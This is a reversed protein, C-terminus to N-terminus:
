AVPGAKVRAQPALRMWTEELAALFRAYSWQAATERGADLMAALRRGGARALDAAEALADAAATFDDDPAWFGNEPTAYQLGGVGTYGACLAGCAMAELATIGVSEARPLSLFLRSAAFTAAVEAEPRDTLERWHLDAHRPHFRGFFGRIVPAEAARKMPTYAVAWDPPEARPTFLREDAFCPVLEVRAQPFARRVTEALRPGVSIFTLPGEIPLADILELSLGVTYAQNFVITRGPPQGALHRFMGYADDPVVLVDGPRVSPDATVLGAAGLWDPLVEPRDTYLGANFGLGRLAQVHRVIMKHGGRIRGGTFLVYLIRPM